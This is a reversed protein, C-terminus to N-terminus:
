KIQYYKYFLKLGWLRLKLKIPKYHLNKAIERFSLMGKFDNYYELLSDWQKLGGIKGFQISQCLYLGYSKPNKLYINKYNKSLGDELYECIYIIENFFRLRYGDYAIRDWVVCETCFKEGQFEPFPYKKLVKTYFVEAKDGSIGYKPRELMTIDLYDKTKQVQGVVRNISYGRNGCVGAFNEKESDPISREVFDIRELATDTLYDDSDVIFFLEGRAIQVGKNIARHKGGNDVKQYVIPFFNDEKLWQNFLEETNDTSGDDIVVWEFDKFTQRQLSRYLNEIRYARNYTPTFVTIKM